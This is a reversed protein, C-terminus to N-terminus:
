EHDEGDGGYRAALYERLNKLAAWRERITMEFAPAGPPPPLEGRAQLQRELRDLRGALGRM